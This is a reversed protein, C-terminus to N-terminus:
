TRRYRTPKNIIPGMSDMHMQARHAMAVLCAPCTVSDLARTTSANALRVPQKTCALKDPTIVGKIEFHIPNDKRM